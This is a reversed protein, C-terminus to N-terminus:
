LNAWRRKSLTRLPLEGSTSNEDDANHLIISPVDLRIFRHRTPMVGWNISPQGTVMEHLFGVVPFAVIGVAVDYISNEVTAKIIWTLFGITFVINNASVYLEFIEFIIMLGIQFPFWYRWYDYKSPFKIFALTVMFFGMNWTLHTYFDYSPFISYLNPGIVTILQAFIPIPWFLLTFVKWKDIQTDFSIM